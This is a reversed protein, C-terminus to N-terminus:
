LVSQNNWVCKQVEQLIWWTLSIVTCHLMCPFYGVLAPPVFIFKSCQFKLQCICVVSRCHYLLFCVVSAVATVQKLKRILERLQAEVRFASFLCRWHIWHKQCWSAPAGSCCLFVAAKLVGERFWVFVDENGRHSISVLRTHHSLAPTSTILLQSTFASSVLPALCGSSCLLSRWGLSCFVM